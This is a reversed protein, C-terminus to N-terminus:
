SRPRPPNGCEAPNLRPAFTGPKSTCSSESQSPESGLRIGRVTVTRRASADPPAAAAYRKTTRYKDEPSLSVYTRRATLTTGNNPQETVRVSYDFLRAASGSKAHISMYWRN